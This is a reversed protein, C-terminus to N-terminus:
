NDNGYNSIYCNQEQYWESSTKPNEGKAFSIISLDYDGLDIQYQKDTLKLLQAAQIHWPLKDRDIPQFIEYDDTEDPDESVKIEKKGLWVQIQIKAANRMNSQRRGMNKDIADFTSIPGHWNKHLYMVLFIVGFILGLIIMKDQTDLSLESVTLGLKNFVVCVVQSVLDDKAILAIANSILFVIANLSVFAFRERTYKRNLWVIYVAAGVVSVVGLLLISLIIYTM